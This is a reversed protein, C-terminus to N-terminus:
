ANHEEEMKDELDNVASELSCWARSYEGTEWLDNYYNFIYEVILRCVAYPPPCKVFAEIYAKLAKAVKKKKKNAFPNKFAEKRHEDIFGDVLNFLKM